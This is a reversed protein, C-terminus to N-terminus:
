WIEQEGAGPRLVGGEGILHEPFKRGFRGFVAGGATLHKYQMSKNKSAFSRNNADLTRGIQTWSRPAEPWSSKSWPHCPHSLCTELDDSRDTFDTTLPIKTKSEHPALM